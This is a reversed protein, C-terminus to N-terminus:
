GTGGFHAGVIGVDSVKERLNAVITEKTIEGEPLDLMASKAEQPLDSQKAKQVLDDKHIRDGVNDQVWAVAMQITDMDMVM